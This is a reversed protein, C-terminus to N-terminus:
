LSWKNDIIMLMITVVSYILQKWMRKSYMFFIFTAPRISCILKPHRLTWMALNKKSSRFTALRVNFHVRVYETWLGLNMGSCHFLTWFTMHRYSILNNRRNVAESNYRGAIAGVLFSEAVTFIGLCIFNLPFSRRASECCAMSIVVILTTIAAVLVLGPNKQSLELTPKHFIFLAVMGFTFLLQAQLLFFWLILINVKM